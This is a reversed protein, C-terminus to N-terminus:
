PHTAPRSLTMYIFGDGSWTQVRYGDVTDEFIKAEVEDNPFEAQNLIFLHTVEPGSQVIYHTIPHTNWIEATASIPTAGNLNSSPGLPDPPNPAHSADLYKQLEALTHGSPPPVPLTALQAAYHTFDSLQAGAAAGSNLSTPLVLLMVLLLIVVLVVSFIAARWWWNISPPPALEKEPTLAAALTDVASKKPEPEDAIAPLEELTEGTSEAILRSAFFITAGGRMITAALEAPPAISALKRSFQGDFNKELEWWAALQPNAAALDRAEGAGPVDAGGEDGPPCLHLIAKAEDPTMVPFFRSDLNTPTTPSSKRSSSKATPSAHL